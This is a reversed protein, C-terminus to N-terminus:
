FQIPTFVLLWVVSDIGPQKSVEGALGILGLSKLTDEPLSESYLCFASM